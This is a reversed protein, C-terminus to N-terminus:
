RVSQRVAKAAAKGIEDIYRQANRDFARALFRRGVPGDETPPKRSSIPGLNYRDEHIKVSYDEDYSVVRFFRGLPTVKGTHIHAGTLQPSIADSRNLLDQANDDLQQEVAEEVNRIVIKARKVTQKRGTVPKRKAL